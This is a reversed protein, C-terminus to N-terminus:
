GSPRAGEPSPHIQSGYTPELPALVPVSHNDGGSPLAPPVPPRVIDSLAPFRTTSPGAAPVSRRRSPRGQRHSADSAPNRPGAPPRRAPTRPFEIGSVVTRCAFTSTRGPSVARYPSTQGPSHGDPELRPLRPPDRVLQGHRHGPIRHDLFMTSHTPGVRRCGPSWRPAVRFRVTRSRVVGGGHALKEICADKRNVAGTVPVNRRGSGPRLGVGPIVRPKWM